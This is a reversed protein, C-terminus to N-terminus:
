VFNNRGEAVTMLAMFQAQMDTPFGPHPQTKINVAKIAGPRRVRLGGAEELVEVGAERLKGIFAEMHLTEAGRIAVEGGTLAAAVMYTGAEIRDAMVRHQMPKLERVGDIVITDSGAGKVQAGM